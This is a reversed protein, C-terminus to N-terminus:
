WPSVCIIQTWERGRKKKARRLTSAPYSILLMVKWLESSFRPKCCGISSDFEYTLRQRMTHRETSFIFCRTKILVVRHRWSAGCTASEGIVTLPSPGGQAAWREREGGRWANAPTHLVLRSLSWKAQPLSAKVMSKHLSSAALFGWKDCQQLWDYAYIMLSTM